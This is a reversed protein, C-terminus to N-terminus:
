TKLYLIRQQSVYTRMTRTWFRNLHAKIKEHVISGTANRHGSTATHSLEHTKVVEVAIRKHASILASLNRAARNLTCIWASLCYVIMETNTRDVM